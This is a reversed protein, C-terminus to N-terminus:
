TGPLVQHELSEQSAATAHTHQLACNRQCAVQHQHHCASSGGLEANAAMCFTAVCSPLLRARHPVYMLSKTASTAPSLSGVSSSAAAISFCFHTQQEIKRSHHFGVKCADTANSISQLRTCPQNIHMHLLGYQGINVECVICGMQCKRSKRLWQRLWDAVSQVSM